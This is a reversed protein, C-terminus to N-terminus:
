MISFQHGCTVTARLPETMIGCGLLPSAGRLRCGRSKVSTTFILRFPDPYFPLFRHEGKSGRREMRRVKDVLFYNFLIASIFDRSSRDEIIWAWGDGAFFLKSMNQVLRSAQDENPADPWNSYRIVEPISLLAQFPASDDPTVARLNLRSTSLIPFDHTAAELMACESRNRTAINLRWTRVTVKFTSDAWQPGVGLWLFGGNLATVIAGAWCLRRSGARRYLGM